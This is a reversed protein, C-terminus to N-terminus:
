FAEDFWLSRGTLNYARLAIGLIVALFVTIGAGKTALKNKHEIGM